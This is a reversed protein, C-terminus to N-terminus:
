SGSGLSRTLLRSTQGSGLGGGPWSSRVLALTRLAGLLLPKRTCLVAPRSGAPNHKSGSRRPVQSGSAPLAEAALGSGRDQGRRGTQPAGQPFLVWQETNGDGAAVGRPVPVFGHDRARQGENHPSLGPDSLDWPCIEESGLDRGLPLTRPDPKGMTKSKLTGAERECSVHSNHAETRGELACPALTRPHRGPRCMSPAARPAGPSRLLAAAALGQKLFRLGCGQYEPPAPVQATQFLSPCVPGLPREM